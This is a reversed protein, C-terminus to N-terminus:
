CKSILKWNCNGFLTFNGKSDGLAVALAEKWTAIEEFGSTCLEGSPDLNERGLIGFGGLSIVM